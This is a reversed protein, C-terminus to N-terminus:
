SLPEISDVLSTGLEIFEPDIDAIHIMAPGAPHDPMWWIRHENEADISISSIWDWRAEFAYECPEDQACTAGDVVRVDFRFANLGGVEVQSANSIELNAPPSDLFSEIDSLDVPEGVLSPGGAQPTVKPQLGAILVIGRDGPGRSIGGGVLVIAGPQNPQVFWGSLDASMPVGFNQLQYRGDPITSFAAFLGPPGDPVLEAPEPPLETGGFMTGGPLPADLGPDALEASSILTAFADLSPPRDTYPNVDFGAFLVGAPTEALYIQARQPTFASFPLSGRRSTDLLRLTVDPISQAFQPVSELDVAYGVLERDFLEISQGNPQVSIERVASLAGLVDDVTEVASGNPSQTILALIALDTPVNGGSGAPDIFIGDGYAYVDHAADADFRVGGLAPYSFTRVRDGLDPVAPEFRTLEAAPDTAIAQLVIEPSDVQVLSNLIQDRFEYNRNATEQTPGGSVVVLIADDVEGVFWEEFGVPFVELFAPAESTGCNFLDPIADGEGFFPVDEFRFGTLPTGFLEITEGTPEPAEGLAAEVVESWQAITRVPSFESEFRTAAIRAVYMHAQRAGLEAVGPEFVLFCNDDVLLRSASPLEFQVGGLSPLSNTGAPLAIAEFPRPPLPSEGGQPEDNAGTESNPEPVEIETEPADNEEDSPVGAEDVRGCGAALLVLALLVASFKLVLGTIAQRTKRM